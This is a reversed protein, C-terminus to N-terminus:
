FDHQINEKVQVDRAVRTSEMVLGKNSYWDKRQERRGGGQKGQVVDKGSSSNDAPFTQPADPEIPSLNPTGNQNPTQAAGRITVVRPHTLPLLANNLLDTADEEENDFRIHNGQSTRPIDVVSFIGFLLTKM